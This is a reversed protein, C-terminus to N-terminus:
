ELVKPGGQVKGFYKTSIGTAIVPSLISLCFSLLKLAETVEGQSIQKQRGGFVRILCRLLFLLELWHAGWWM